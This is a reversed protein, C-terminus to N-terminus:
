FFIGDCLLLDYSNIYVLFNSNQLIYINHVYFTHLIKFSVNGFPIALYFGEISAGRYYDISHGISLLLFLIGCFGSVLLCILNKSRSYGVAAGILYFVAYPYTFLFYRGNIFDPRYKFKIRKWNIKKSRM